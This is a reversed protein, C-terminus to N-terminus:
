RMKEGIGNWAEPFRPGATRTLIMHAMRLITVGILTRLDVQVM